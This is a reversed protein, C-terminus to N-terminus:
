IFRDLVMVVFGSYPVMINPGVHYGADGYIFMPAGNSDKSVEELLEATNAEAFLFEDNGSAPM